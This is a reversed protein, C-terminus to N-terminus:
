RKRQVAVLFVVAMIFSLKGNFPSIWGVLRIVSAGPRYLNWRGRLVLYSYFDMFLQEEVDVKVKLM